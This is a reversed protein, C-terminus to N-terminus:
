QRTATGLSGANSGNSDIYNDGYSSVVGNTLAQWGHGNGTVMSQAARVTAGIGSAVLGGASNNASVSHFVSLTTTSHGSASSAYFGNAVNHASVSEYVTGNLTGTGNDGEFYIGQYGNNSVDVRTLVATVTGAGAGVPAVAIGSLGNASITSDSISLHSTGTPGFDIGDNVVHRIVCNEITLSSGSNFQVGIVGSGAGDILVGNLSVADAAAANVIVGIANGTSPVSLGAFGHGQISIAKTITLSGYGAPDLVDIEGGAAAVDHAHQFTRCPAAFSCANADSGQAGVFVRASQAQAAPVGLACVCLLALPPFALSALKM